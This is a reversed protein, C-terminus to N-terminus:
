ANGAHKLSLSLNRCLDRSPLWQSKVVLQCSLHPFAVWFWGVDGMKCLQASSPRCQKIENMLQHLLFMFNLSLCHLIVALNGGLCRAGPLQQISPARPLSGPTTFCGPPLFGQPHLQFPCAHSCVGSFLACGRKWSIEHKLNKGGVM